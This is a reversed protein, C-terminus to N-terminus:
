EKVKPPTSWPFNLKEKKTNTGADRTTEEWRKRLFDTPKSTFPDKGDKQKTLDVRDIFYRIDLSVLNRLKSVTIDAGSLRDATDLTMPAEPITEGYQNQFLTGTNHAAWVIGHLTNFSPERLFRQLRDIVNVYKAGGYLDYSADGPSWTDSINDYDIPNEAQAQFLKRYADLDDNELAQTWWEEKVKGQRILEKFMVKLDYLEESFKWLCFNKMVTKLTSLIETMRAKRHASESDDEARELLGLAFADIFLQDYKKKQAITLRSFDGPKTRAKSRATVADVRASMERYEEPSLPKGVYTSKNKNMNEKVGEGVM